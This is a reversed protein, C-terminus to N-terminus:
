RQELPTLPALRSPDAIVDVHVHGLAVEREVAPPAPSVGPSLDRTSQVRVILRATIKYAGPVSLGLCTVDIPEDYTEGPGLWAPPKLLRPADECPISSEERYTRLAITLHPVEIPKSTTNVLSVMARGRIQDPPTAAAEASKAGFAAWLGPAGPVEHPAFHPLASVTLVFTHVPKPLSWEAKGFSVAVRITYSGVMPLACALEREFTFSAKAALTTPERNNIHLRASQQRSPRTSSFRTCPFLTGDRLAEIHVRLNSVDVTANSHNTVIVGITPTEAGLLEPLYRV